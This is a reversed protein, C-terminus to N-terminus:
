NKVFTLSVPKGKDSYYFVLRTDTATKVVSFTRDVAPGDKPCTPKTSISSGTPAWVETTTKPPSVGDISSTVLQITGGAAVARTAPGAVAAFPTTNYFVAELLTYQGDELAGGTPAPQPDKVGRITSAAVGDLTLANCVVPAADPAADTSGADGADTATAADSTPGADDVSAPQGDSPSCGVLAGLALLAFCAGLPRALRSPRALAPAGATPLPATNAPSSTDRVPLFSM